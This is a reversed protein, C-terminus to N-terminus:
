ESEVSKKGIIRGRSAVRRRFDNLNKKKKKKKKKKKQNAIQLQLNNRKTTTKLQNGLHYLLNNDDNFIFKRPSGGAEKATADPPVFPVLLNRNLLFEAVVLAGARDSVIAFGLLWNVIAAGSM